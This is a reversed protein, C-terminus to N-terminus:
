KHFIGGDIADAAYGRPEDIIQEHGDFRESPRGFAALIADDGVHIRIYGYEDHQEGEAHLCGEETIGVLLTLIGPHNVGGHQAHLRPEPRRM